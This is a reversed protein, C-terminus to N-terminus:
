QGLQFAARLRPNYLSNGNNAFRRGWQPHPIEAEPQIGLEEARKSANNGLTIVKMTKLHGEDKLQALTNPEDYANVWVAKSENFNVDHLRQAFWLSSNAYEYFPWYWRHKANARDGVIVYEASGLHGLFNDNSLAGDLQDHQQIELADTIDFVITDYSQNGIEYFMLHPWHQSDGLRSQSVLDDFYTKRESIARPFLLQRFRANVKLNNDVDADTRYARTTCYRDKLTADDRSLCVVTVASAKKLVRDVMRGQHPWPTGNRYVHAYVEESMWLRDLVVLRTEALKLARRLVASHYDFIRDRFRYTQHMVIANCRQVLEQALCSKGTANAGELVVIGTPAM